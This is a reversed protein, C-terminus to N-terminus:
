IIDRKERDIRGKGEVTELDKILNWTRRFDRELRM